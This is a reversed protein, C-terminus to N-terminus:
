LTGLFAMVDVGDPYDALRPEQTKGFPTLPLNLLGPRAAICQIERSRNRLEKELTTKEEYFEYNLMAIRSPITPDETLLICGNNMFATRNLILLAINYDFNNKYKDHLIIEQFDNLRELLRQFDYNKPVYLKSVNRCGLGFYRFVDKGLAHLEEDTESGDLVAIGNRNHRIIHPYKGFYAEFYRTSNDSGTAIVADFDKLREVIEFFAEAAPNFRALLKLLYPLLFKDKDSLKIKAKYGTVFTCILDHFGVLPLNGAMILGVVKDSPVDTLAYDAAWNKLKEGDLFEAAIAQIAREQNEKTFWLNNFYTRHILADLYEDEGRLHRGLAALAELREKLTM